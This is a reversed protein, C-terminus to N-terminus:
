CRVYAKTATSLVGTRPLRPGDVSQGSSGCRYTISVCSCAPGGHPRVAVFLSTPRTTSSHVSRVFSLLEEDGVALLRQRLTKRAGCRELRPGAQAEPLVSQDADPIGPEADDTFGVPVSGSIDACKNEVVATLGTCLVFQHTQNPGELPPGGVGRSAPRARDRAARL